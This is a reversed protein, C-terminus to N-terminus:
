AEEVAEDMGFHLSRNLYLCLMLVGPNVEFFAQLLPSLREDRSPLKINTM